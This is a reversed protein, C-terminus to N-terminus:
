LGRVLLAEYVKKLYIDFFYPILGLLLKNSEVWYFLGDIDCKEKNNLHSLGKNWEFFNMGCEKGHPNINKKQKKAYAYRM